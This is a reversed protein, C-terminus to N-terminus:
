RAHHNGKAILIQLVIGNGLLKTLQNLKAIDSDMDMALKKKSRKILVEKHKINEIHRKHTFIM